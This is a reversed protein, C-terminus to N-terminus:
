WAIAQAEEVTEAAAIEDELAQRKGTAAGSLSVWADAKAIIRTVLEAKDMSRASAIADILPTSVSNDALWARAESEQKDWTKTEADPYDALIHALEASYGANIRQMADAKAQELRAATEEATFERVEWTQYWVGDRQEPQGETVVDGSPREAPHIRPYALAAMQEDSPSRPLSVNPLTRRVQSLSVDRSNALDRYM